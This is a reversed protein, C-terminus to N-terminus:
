EEKEMKMKMYELKDRYDCLAKKVVSKEEDYVLMPTKVNKIVNLVMQIATLERNIKDHKM